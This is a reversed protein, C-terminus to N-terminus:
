RHKKLSEQLLGDCEFKKALMLYLPLLFRLKRLNKGRNFAAYSDTVKHFVRTWNCTCINHLHWIMSFLNKFLVLLKFVIALTYAGAM